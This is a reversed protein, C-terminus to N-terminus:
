VPWSQVVIASCVFAVLSWGANIWMLKVSRQEWAVGHMESALLFGAWLLAATKVADAVASVGTLQLIVALVFATIFSASLGIIMGRKMGTKAKEDTMGTLKMWSTGFVAPSYWLMGLIMQLVTAALVAMININALQTM